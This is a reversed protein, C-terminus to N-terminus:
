EPLAAVWERAQKVARIDAPTVQDSTPAVLLRLGRRVRKSLYQGRERSRVEPSPNPPTPTM